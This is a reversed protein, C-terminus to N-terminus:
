KDYSGITRNRNYRFYMWWVLLQHVRSWPGRSGETLPLQSHRFPLGLV